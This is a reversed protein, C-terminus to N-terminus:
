KGLPYSVKKHIVMKALGSTGSTFYIIAPHDWPLHLSELQDSPPINEMAKYYDVTDEPVLGGVQMVTKVSPCWFRVARFKKVMAEDGIFATAKSKNCRYQIDNETIMSPVPALIIGRRLAALGV